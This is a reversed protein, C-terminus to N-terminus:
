SCAHYHCHIQHLRASAHLRAFKFGLDDSKLRAAGRSFANVKCYFARVTLRIELDRRTKSRLPTSAPREVAGSAEGGEARWGASTGAGAAEVGEVRRRASTREGGSAAAQAAEEDGEV